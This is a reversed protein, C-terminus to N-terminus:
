FTEPVGGLAGSFGRLSNDFVSSGFHSVPFRMTLRVTQVM